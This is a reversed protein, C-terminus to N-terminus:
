TGSAVSVGRKEFVERAAVVGNLAAPFGAYVAMQMIVEVIERPACGVNLAGKIHVRLQGGATGMATLAAVTALERTKLDLGPRSVVTGYGFEVVWRALEPAIDALSAILRAADLGTIQKIAASGQEFDVASAAADPATGRQEITM